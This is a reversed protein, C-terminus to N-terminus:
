EFVVPLISLVLLAAMAINFLQLRRGEALFRGLASGLLTWASVCPFAVLAFLATILLVEAFVSDGGTTYAAVAGTAMMWAKPNVWQFAAAQLFTLPPRSSAEGQRRTTAIRWALWLLYAIGAIKLIDHLAPVARFLGGLGLGVALVMVPFGISIGLIHPLTRRYGYNVGSATVMINNPGPTITAVLAFAAIVPILEPAPLMQVM